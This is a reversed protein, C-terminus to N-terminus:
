RSLWNLFEEKTWSNDRDLSHVLDHHANCLTVLNELTNEGKDVHHKIHHLELRNRNLDLDPANVKPWNCKRCAQNDRDLVQSRITQPIKRDHIQDQRDELLLYYGVPLDPKGTNKTLIPWGYETRLERVRRPWDSINSVYSLEEGTVPRGINKRLFVLIKDRASLKDDKRIEKMIGYRYATERDQQKSLLIYTDPKLKSRKFDKIEEADLMKIATIGSIIPWGSEVRLERVRRAYEQIGSIVLLEDGNIIEGQYRLLYAIIREKASKTNGHEVLTTGLERSKSVLKVLHLVKKRLDDSSLLEEFRDTIKKLQQYLQFSDVGLKGSM